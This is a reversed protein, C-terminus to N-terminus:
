VTTSGQNRSNLPMRHRPSCQWDTGVVLLNGVYIERNKKNGGLPVGGQPLTM